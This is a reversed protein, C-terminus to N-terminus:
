HSGPASVLSPCCSGGRTSMVRIVRPPNGSHPHDESSALCPERSPSICYSCPYMYSIHAHYVQCIDLGTSNLRRRHKWFCVTITLDWSIGHDPMLHPSPCRLPQSVPAFSALCLLVEEWHHMLDWPRSLKGPKGISCATSIGATRTPWALPGSPARPITGSRATAQQSCPLSRRRQDPGQRRKSKIYTLVQCRLLDALSGKGSQHYAAQARHFSRTSSCGCSSTWLSTHRAYRLSASSAPRKSKM